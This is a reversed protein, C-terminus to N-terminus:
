IKIQFVISTYIITDNRPAISLKKALKKLIKRDTKSLYFFGFAKLYLSKAKTPSVPNSGTVGQKYPLHESGASSIAGEQQIRTCIYLSKKIEFTKKQCFICKKLKLISYVQFDFM